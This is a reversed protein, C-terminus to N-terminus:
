RFISHCVPPSGGLQPNDLDVALFSTGGKDCCGLARSVGRPRLVRTSLTPPPSRTASAARSIPTEPCVAQFHSALHRRPSGSASLDLLGRVDGRAVGGSLLNSTTAALSDRLAFQGTTEAAVPTGAQM